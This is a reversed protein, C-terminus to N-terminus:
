AEGSGPSTTGEMKPQRVIAGLLHFATFGILFKKTMQGLFNYFSLIYLCVKKSQARPCTQYFNESQGIVGSGPSAQSSSTQEEFMSIPDRPLGSPYPVDGPRPTLLSHCFWVLGYWFPM